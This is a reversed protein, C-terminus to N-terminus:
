TPDAESRVPFRRIDVEPDLEKGLVLHEVLQQAFFPGLSTGKSGLGNFIALGPLLPHTGLFPRRDKVTPRIGALHEEVQFPTDLLQRLQDLLWAKGKETPQEGKFQNEMTAGIWYLDEELPVVFIRNKLIKKFAMGPIRVRFIEGKAGRFPLYSFFPNFKGWFGECFIVTRAQIGSYNWTGDQQEFDEHRISRHILRGEQRLKQSFAAILRSVAVRGSHRVEGYAHAEHIRGRYNGLDPKEVMYKQYDPDEARAWWSNVDATTLLSRLIPREENLSIGLESELQAYTSRAFPLLEDFRWSKVYYRGTIPNILGAAVRSAAQPRPEDIVLVEQGAKRLFWAMLTGALGQGIILFDTKM